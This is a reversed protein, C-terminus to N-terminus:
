WRIDLFSPLLIIQRLHCNWGDHHSTNEYIAWKETGCRSRRRGDYLSVYEQYFRPNRISDGERNPRRSTAIPRWRNWGPYTFTGRMRVRYSDPSRDSPSFPAITTVTIRVRDASDAIAPGGSWLEEVFWSEGWIVRVPIWRGDLRGFRHRVRRSVEPVYSSCVGGGARIDACVDCGFWSLYRKLRSSLVLYSVIM